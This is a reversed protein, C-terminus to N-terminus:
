SFSDEFTPSVERLAKDVDDDAEDQDGYMQDLILVLGMAFAGDFRPKLLLSFVDKGLMVHSSPDVKRKIEVKPERSSSERSSKYIICCRQSYSGQIHYEEDTDAGYVGVLVESRRIISSRRKTFTPDQDESKEGM